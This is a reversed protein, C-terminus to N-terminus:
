PHKDDRLKSEKMVYDLAQPFGSLSFEYNRISCDDSVRIHLIRHKKMYEYICPLDILENDKNIYAYPLILEHTKNSYNCKRANTYINSSNDFHLQIQIKRCKSGINTLRCVSKFVEENKDVM